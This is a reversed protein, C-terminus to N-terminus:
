QWPDDDGSRNLGTSGADGGGLCGAVMLNALLLVGLVARSWLYSSGHAMNSGCNYGRKFTTLTAM